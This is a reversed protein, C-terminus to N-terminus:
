GVIGRRRVAGLMTEAANADSMTEVLTIGRATCAKSCRERHAKFREHYKELLARSVTVEVGRGSEVDTLRLDGVLGADRDAAPDVEGPALVRVCAADFGSPVVLANLTAELGEDIMLDSILVAVGQGRRSLASRRLEAAVDVRPMARTTDSVADLLFTGVRRINRRGRLPSLTRAQRTVGRANAGVPGIPPPGIVTVVVRNQQALGIAALAMTLRAAAVLKTPREEGVGAVASRGGALMSASADLYLHLTQDEDERFLKLVLRDFRALVNWDLHRLDDGPTYPRYDDFEVSQGRRKSRREGPLTGSFLKRSLISLRDLRALLEPGILEDVGGPTRMDPTLLM